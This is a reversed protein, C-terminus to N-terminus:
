HPHPDQIMAMARLFPVIFTVATIYPRHPELMLPFDRNWSSDLALLLSNSLFSVGWNRDREKLALTQFFISYHSLEEQSKSM